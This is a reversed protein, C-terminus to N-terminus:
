PKPEWKECQCLGCKGAQSHWTKLHGCVCYAPETKYIRQHNKRFEETVPKQSEDIM